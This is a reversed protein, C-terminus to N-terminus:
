GAKTENYLRRLLKVDEWTDRKYQPYRLLEAPHYTAILQSGEFEHVKQRLDSLSSKTNLLIQAAIRGMCLIFTPKIFHIQKKLYPLCQDTEEVKPDRSRPTRCKLIHCMFVEQRTLDISLLIKDLLQGAEGAFPQGALDDETRPAEGILMIDAQPNGDGFVFTNRTHGLACKTCDKINAYLEDLNKSSTWELPENKKVSDVIESMSLVPEDGYLDIQQKLYEGIEHGLERMDM